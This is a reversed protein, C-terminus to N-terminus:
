KNAPKDKLKNAHEDASLTQLLPLRFGFTSGKGEVSNFIMVGGHAVVVKKALFLGVGTGDPRATRANTARYFKTFLQHRESAPVGIGQDQVTLTIDKGTKVLDVKIVGGPHSYFIANDIFNMIAQRVKAEDLLLTPMDSPVNADIRLERSTATSLLQHVEQQVIDALNVPTREITFKGTQLRSVNLFDSILYVMRQSSAFAQDLLQKQSPNLKGADGELVISIYGKVSTLPTRLQHSAMSIFEDKANDLSKLKKNSERLESTAERVQEQLTENFHAIEEFRLGNQAAVALEDAAIRILKLDDSSYIRGNTKAGYIVYGILDKSTQLNAVVAVNAHQLTRYMTTDHSDLEDTVIMPAARRVIASYAEIMQPPRGVSITRDVGGNKTDLLVVMAFDPKLANRLITLSERTLRRLDVRSVLVTSIDDLVQQTDYADQYFIARTLRDFFKKLPAFTLALLLAIGVYSAQQGFALSDSRLLGAFLGFTIGAYLLAVTVLSLVYALLRVAVLRIDFLRHKIIAYSFLSVMVLVGLPISLQSIVVEPLFIIAALILVTAAVVGFLLFRTRYRADRNSNHSMYRSLRWIGLGLYVVVFLILVWYLWNAEVVIGAESLSVNTYLLNPVFAMPVFLLPLAYDRWDSRKDASLRDTYRMTFHYFEVAFFAPLTLTIQFALEAVTPMSTHLLQAVFQLLVWMGLFFTFLAFAKNIKTRQRLFVLAAVAFIGITTLIYLITYLIFLTM